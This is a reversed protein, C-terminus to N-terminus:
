YRMGNAVAFMTVIHMERNVYILLCDHKIELYNQLNALM